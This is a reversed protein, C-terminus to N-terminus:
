KGAAKQKIYFIVAAWPHYVEQTHQDTVTLGLLTPTNLFDVILNALMDFDRRLQWTQEPRTLDHLVLFLRNSVHYRGQKSLLLHM